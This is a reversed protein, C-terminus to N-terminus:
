VDFFLERIVLKEILKYRSHSRSKPPVVPAFRMGPVLCWRLISTVKMLASVVNTGFVATSPDGCSRGSPASPLGLSPYAGRSSPPTALPRPCHKFGPKARTTLPPNGQSKRM